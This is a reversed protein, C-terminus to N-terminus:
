ADTNKLQQRANAIVDSAPTGVGAEIEAEGRTLLTSVELKDIISQDVAETQAWDRLADWDITNHQAILRAQERSPNDHWYIFASIRDMIAQTPTIV